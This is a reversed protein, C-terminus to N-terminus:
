FRTAKTRGLLPRFAELVKRLEVANSVLGELGLEKAAEELPQRVEPSAALRAAAADRVKELKIEEEKSQQQLKKLKSEASVVDNKAEERARQAEDLKERATALSKFVETRTAEPNSSYRSILTIFDDLEEFIRCALSAWLNADVYHWANFNIQAIRSCFVTKSGAAEAKESKECLLRVRTQMKKIFFSKGTGWDGFIGLCLPPRLDKFALVSSFAEVERTIGLRDEGEDSDSALGVLVNSAKLLAIPEV